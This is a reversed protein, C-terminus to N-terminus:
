AEPNEFELLMIQSQDPYILILSCDFKPLTPDIPLDPFARRDAFNFSTAQSPDFILFPEDPSEGRKVGFRNGPARRLIGNVGASISGRGIFVAQLKTSETIFKHLLDVADQASIPSGTGSSAM